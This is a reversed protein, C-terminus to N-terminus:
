ARSPSHITLFKCLDQLEKQFCSVYEAQKIDVWPALDSDLALLSDELFTQPENNANSTDKDHEFIQSFMWSSRRASRSAPLIEKMIKGDRLVFKKDVNQIM